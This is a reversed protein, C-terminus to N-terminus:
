RSAIQNNVQQPGITINSQQGIVVKPRKMSELTAVTMRCQDQARLALRMLAEWQKLGPQRAGRMALNTFISQLAIAQACLMEECTSLDGTSAAEVNKSLAEIVHQIDQAGFQKAYDSVVAAASVVSGTAARASAVPTLRQVARAAPEAERDVDALNEPRNTKM